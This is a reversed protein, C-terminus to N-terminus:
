SWTLFQLVVKNLIIYQFIMWCCDNKKLSKKKTNASKIQCYLTSSVSFCLSFPAIVCLFYDPTSELRLWQLARWCIEGPQEPSSYHQGTTHVNFVTVQYKNIKKIEAQMKCLTFCSMYFRCGKYRITFSCACASTASPYVQGINNDTFSGENGLLLLFRCCVFWLTRLYLGWVYKYLM